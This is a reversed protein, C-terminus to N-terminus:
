HDPAFIIELEIERLRFGIAPIHRVSLNVNEVSTMEGQIGGRILYGRQHSVEDACKGSTRM